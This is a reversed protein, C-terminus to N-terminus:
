QMEGDRRQTPVLPELQWGRQVDYGVVRDVGTVVRGAPHARVRAMHVCVDITSAVISRPYQPIVEDILQAFRDLMARTDNAHITALGGPHGTNWSKLLDLAAGDRVEGVVIRDPRLRMADMVAHRWSYHPPEVLLEVRDRAACQLEPTDEIILIRDDGAHVVEELVANAFTTKGSGTGGGILVNAKERVAARLAVAQASSLIEQAVYHDLSLRKSIPKRFAFVPATVVPAILAQVRAGWVPLKCALSPKEPHLELELEAAIARLMREAQGADLQLGAPRRGAGLVDVWVSGDANLMIEIVAPDELFELIPTLAFRLNSARRAKGLERPDDHAM